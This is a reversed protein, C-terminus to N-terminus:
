SSARCQGPGVWLSMAARARDSLPTHWVSSRNGAGPATSLHHVLKVALKEASCAAARRTRSSRRRGVEGPGCPLSM